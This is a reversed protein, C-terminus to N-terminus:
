AFAAASVRLPPRSPRHVASADFSAALFNDLVPQPINRDVTIRQKILKLSGDGATRLTQTTALAVCAWPQLSDSASSVHEEEAFYHKVIFFIDVCRITVMSATIEVIIPTGISSNELVIKKAKGPDVLSVSFEPPPGFLHHIFDLGDGSRTTRSAVFMVRAAGKVCAERKEDPSVNHSVCTSCDTLTAEIEACARM